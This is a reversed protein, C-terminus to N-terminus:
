AAARMQNRLARRRGVTRTSVHLIAAIERMTRGTDLRDIAAAMEAFSLPTREGRCAAAIRDESSVREVGTAARRIKALDAVVRDRKAGIAQAIETATLGLKNLKAVRERRIKAAAAVAAYDTAKPARAASRRLRRRITSREGMTTAGWVGFTTRDNIAFQLCDTRFPCSGCIAKAKAEEAKDAPDVFLDTQGECARGPENFFWPVGPSDALWPQRNPM